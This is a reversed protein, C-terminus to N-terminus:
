PLCAAQATVIVKAEEVTARNELMPLWDFGAKTLRDVTCTCFATGNPVSTDQACASIVESVGIRTLRGDPELGQSRLFAGMSVLAQNVAGGGSDNSRARPEYRVSLATSVSVYGPAAATITIRTLGRRLSIPQTFTGDELGVPRGAVLLSANAPDISGSVYIRSVSFTEGDTPTALTLRVSPHGPSSGCGAVAFAGACLAGQLLRKPSGM